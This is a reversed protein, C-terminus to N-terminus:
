PILMRFILAREINHHCSSDYQNNMFEVMIKEFEEGDDAM